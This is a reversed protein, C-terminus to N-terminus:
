ILKKYVEEYQDVMKEVTFNNKVHERCNKRMQKYQKDPLSYIQNVAECLGEIGTKKIIFNGRKETDSFNVLFGTEGDKIVEPTSGRAFAVVPTGTAMAEIMVIGFPEDWRIPFLFLKGNGLFQSKIKIDKAEEIHSLFGQIFHPEIEKQYYPIDGSDIYSSIVFKKKITEAVKIGLDVGKTYNIRGIWVMENGGTENFDFESIIISNYITAVYNLEPLSERQKNSISVFPKDHFSLLTNRISQVTGYQEFLDKVNSNYAGHLTYVCPTEAIDAFYLSIESANDHIVDYKGKAQSYFKYIHDLIYYPNLKINIHNGLASPYYFKLHALTISDGTAYLDVTHGKKVLGDVLNTVVREIGGYGKPPISIWPPATVAIRM